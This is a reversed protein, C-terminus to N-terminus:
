KIFRIVLPYRYLKGDGSKIAAVITLVLHAAIFFAFLLPIIVLLVRPTPDGVILFATMLLIFYAFAALFVYITFSIQFNLSQKGHENVLPSEDKKILWIVLPVLINGLPVGIYLSLAGLHCFIGWIRGPKDGDMPQKIEQEFTEREM